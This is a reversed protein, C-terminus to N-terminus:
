RRNKGNKKRIGKGKCEKCIDSLESDRRSKCADDSIRAQLPECWGAYRDLWQDVTVCETKAVRRQPYRLQNSGFGAKNDFRGMEELDSFAQRSM